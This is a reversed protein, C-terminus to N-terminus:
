ISRETKRRVPHLPALVTSAVQIDSKFSMSLALYLSRCGPINNFLSPLLLPQMNTPQAPPYHVREGRTDRITFSFIQKGFLLTAAARDLSSRFEQLSGRLRRSRCSDPDRSNSIHWGSESLMACTDAQPLGQHYLYGYYSHTSTQLM